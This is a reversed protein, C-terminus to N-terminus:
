LPFSALACMGRIPPIGFNNSFSREHGHDDPTTGALALAKSPCTVSPKSGKTWVRLWGPERVASGDWTCPGAGGWGEDGVRYDARTYPTASWPIGQADRAGSVVQHALTDQLESEEDEFEQCPVARPLASPFLPHARGHGVTLDLVGAQCGLGPAAPEGGAGRGLASPACPLRPAWLHSM